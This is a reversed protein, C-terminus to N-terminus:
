KFFEQVGIPNEGSIFLDGGGDMALYAPYQPYDIEGLYTGQATAYVVRNNQNDQIYLNGTPDVAVSLCGNNIATAWDAGYFSNLFNYNSDLEVVAAEANDIAGYIKGSPDIAVDTYNDGGQYQNLISDDNWFLNTITGSSAVVLNGNGDIKVGNPYSLTGQGSWSYDYTAGSPTLYYGDVTNIDCIYLEGYSDIAMGSPSSESINYLYTGTSDFVEVDGSQADGVAIYGEGVAVGTPQSFDGNVGDTGYQGLSAVLTWASTPIATITPTASPSGAPTGTQTGTAPPHGKTPSLTATSTITPTATVTATLTPTSTVTKTPTNTVTATAPLPTNTNSPLFYIQTLPAAAVTTPTRQSSCSWAFALLSSSLLTLFFFKNFTMM